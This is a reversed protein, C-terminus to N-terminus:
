SWALAAWEQNYFEQRKSIGLATMAGESISQKRSCIAQRKYVDQEPSEAYVCVTKRYHATLTVDYKKLPENRAKLMLNQNTETDKQPFVAICDVPM